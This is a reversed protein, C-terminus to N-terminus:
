QCKVSMPLGGRFTREQPLLPCRNASPDSTETAISGVAVDAPM